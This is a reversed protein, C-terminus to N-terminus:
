AHPTGEPHASRSLAREVVPSLASSLAEREAADLSAALDVISAARLRVLRDLLERGDDTASILKARRDAADEVRTVLDRQVLGDVARSIAPLSLGLSDGVSKLPLESDHEWLGILIKFQTFSLQLDDIARFFDHEGMQMACRTLIGLKEALEAVDAPHDAAVSELLPRQKSTSSAQM